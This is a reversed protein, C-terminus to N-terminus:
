KEGKVEIAELTAPPAPLPMWHTPGGDTKALDYDDMEDPDGFYNAALDLYQNVSHAQVIRPNTKWALFCPDDFDAAWCLIRTGDKPASEITLWEGAAVPQNAMAVPIASEFDNPEPM